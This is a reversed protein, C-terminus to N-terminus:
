TFACRLLRRLRVLRARADAVDRRKWFDGSGRGGAPRGERVQVDEWTVLVTCLERVGADTIANSGLGLKVNLKWGPRAKRVHVDAQARVASLIPAVHEDTVGRHEMNVKLLFGTDVYEM